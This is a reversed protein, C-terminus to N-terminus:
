ILVKYKNLFKFNKKLQIHLTFVHIIIIIITRYIAMYSLYNNVFKNVSIIFYYEFVNKSNILM